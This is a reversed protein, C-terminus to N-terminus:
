GRSGTELACSLCLRALPEALLRQSGMARRCLRCMGYSGQALRGLAADIEALEDWGEPSGASAPRELLRARLASLRSRITSEFVTM